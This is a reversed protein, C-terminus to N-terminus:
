TDPHGPGPPRCFEAEVTFGFFLYKVSFFGQREIKEFRIVMFM